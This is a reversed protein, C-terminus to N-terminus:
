AQPGVTLVGGGGEVREGGADGSELLDLSRALPRVAAAVEEPTRARLCRRALEAAEEYALARVWDRVAGVRAAGVSLEDVGLGVLLPATLSDSAAEGCVEVPIGAQRAGAVIQDILALVAPHYTLAEGPAFRDVELASHTLDNTGISLFDARGAIQAAAGAAKRTEIMAGLPAPADM